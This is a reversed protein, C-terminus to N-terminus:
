REYKLTRGIYIVLFMLCYMYMCSSHAFDALNTGLKWPIKASCKGPPVTFIRSSYPIHRLETAEVRQITERVNRIGQDTWNVLVVYHPM